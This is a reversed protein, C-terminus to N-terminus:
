QDKRESIQKSVSILKIKSRKCRGFCVLQGGQLYRRSNKDIRVCCLGDKGSLICIYSDMWSDSHECRCLIGRKEKEGDGGGGGGGGGERKKKM